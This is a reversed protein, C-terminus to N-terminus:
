PLLRQALAPAPAPCANAPPAALRKRRRALADYLGDAVRRPLASWLFALARWAGGCEALLAGIARSRSLIEGARGQWVISDVGQGPGARWEALAARSSAGELPACRLDPPGEALAFRAGLHCLACTGDYHLVPARADTAVRTQARPGHFCLVFAPWAWLLALPARWALACGLAALAAAGSLVRQARGLRWDGRPDARGAADLSGYAARPACALALLAAAAACSAAAPSSGLLALAPARATFADARVLALALLALAAARTNRGLLLALALALGLLATAHELAGRSRLASALALAALQAGFAARVLSFEGGSWARRANTFGPCASSSSSTAPTRM